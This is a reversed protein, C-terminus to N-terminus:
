AAMVQVSAGFLAPDAMLHALARPGLPMLAVTLAERATAGIGDLRSDGCEAIAAWRGDHNRLLIAMPYGFLPHILEFEVSASTTM